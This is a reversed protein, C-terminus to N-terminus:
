KLIKELLEEFPLADLFLRDSYINALLRIFSPEGDVQIYEILINGYFQPLQKDTKLKKEVEKNTGYVPKLYHKEITEIYNTREYHARDSTYLKYPYDLQLISEKLKDFIFRFQKSSMANTYTIAVGNSAPSAFLHVEIDPSPQGQRKLHYSEYVRAFWYMADNSLVWTQFEYKYKESRKLNEKILPITKSRKPFLKKFIDDFFDM